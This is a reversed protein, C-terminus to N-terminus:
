LIKPVSNDCRDIAPQTATRRRRPEPDAHRTRDAPSSLRQFVTLCHGLRAAPVSMRALDLRMAAENPLQDGLLPVHGQYLNLRPQDFTAGRDPDARHVTEEHTM